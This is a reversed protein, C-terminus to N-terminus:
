GDSSNIELQASVLGAYIGGAQLLEDHTGIEAVSGNELIVLRDANKLTSLRHAIAITTRGTSIRALSDQIYEQTEPDLSSTAEDLILLQPNRLIARAISIRQREGGSLNYGREGVVTNYGDPLAIIFEHAHAVKAAAIIEAPSADNRAYAINDYITGTFLFTEQFVVGVNERYTTENLESVPRGGITITGSDVDYLRLILNILTSKGAGSRGVLGIMEGSKIHLNIDRLVPQYSKYGFRVNKLEIDGELSMENDGATQREDDKSDILEFLKLLSSSVEGLQRPLNSVWRLPTYIYSLYLTFALLNGATMTGKLCLYGGFFIVFFEGIGMFFSLFPFLKAWTQENKITVDALERSAKDFKGIEREESGFTKVVRIGRVIDHLISNARSDAMWQKRYRADIMTWFKRIALVVFPVPLIVLFTLLPSINILICLVVIFMVLKELAYLLQETIFSKVTETDKTVRKMLDGSSRKGLSALTLSQIKEYIRIRLDNSVRCSLRNALRNAIIRTIESAVRVIGLLLATTIIGSIREDVNGTTYLYDDVLSSNLTPAIASLASSITIIISAIIIQAKYPKILSVFRRTLYWKDVCFVCVGDTLTRGCKPCVSKEIKKEKPEEGNKIFNNVIRCFAGLEEIKTMSFRCVFISDSFDDLPNQPVIELTGCGYYSRLVLEGIDNVSFDCENKGDTCVLREGDFTLTGDCFDATM